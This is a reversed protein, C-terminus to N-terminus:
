NAAKSLGQNFLTKYFGWKLQMQTEKENISPLFSAPIPGAVVVSVVEGAEAEGHRQRAACLLDQRTHLPSLRVHRDNSFPSQLVYAANRPPFFREGHLHLGHRSLCALLTAPTQDAAKLDTFAGFNSSLLVVADEESGTHFELEVRAIHANNVSLASRAKNVM